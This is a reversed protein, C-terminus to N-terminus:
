KRVIKWLIRGVVFILFKLFDGRFEGFNKSIFVCILYFVIILKILGYLFWIVECLFFEILFEM